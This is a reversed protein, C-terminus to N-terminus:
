AVQHLLAARDLWIRCLREQEVIRVPPLHRPKSHAVQKRFYTAAADRDTAVNRSFRM